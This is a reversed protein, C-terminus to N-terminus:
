FSNIFDYKSFSITGQNRDNCTNETNDQNVQDMKTDMSDSLGLKTGQNRDNCAEIESTDNMDDQNMGEVIASFSDLLNKLFTPRNFQNM